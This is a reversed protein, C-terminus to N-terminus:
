RRRRFRSKFFRLFFRLKRQRGTPTNQFHVVSWTGDRKAVVLTVLGNPEVADDFEGPFLIGGASQVLVVDPAICRMSKLQGGLRTGKFIGDFVGQHMDAIQRRGQLYDGTAVIYDADEAFPAAFATGDGRQWGDSMQRLLDQIATEDAPSLSLDDTQLSM